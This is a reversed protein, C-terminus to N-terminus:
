KKTFYGPLETGGDIRAYTKDVYSSNYKTGNGGVLNTAGEFMGTSSTVNATIFNNSAYITKVKSNYFMAYMNIVNSTDFSSLDLTTFLTDRFM